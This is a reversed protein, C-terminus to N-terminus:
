TSAVSEWAEVQRSGTRLEATFFAALNEGYVPRGFEPDDDRGVVALRDTEAAQHELDQFM